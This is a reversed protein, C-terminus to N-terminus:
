DSFYHQLVFTWTKEILFIRGWLNDNQNKVDSTMKSKLARFRPRVKM